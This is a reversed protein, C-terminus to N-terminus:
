SRSRGSPLSPPEEEGLILRRFSGPNFCLEIEMEMKPNRIHLVNPDSSDRGMYDLNQLGIVADPEDVPNERVDALIKDDNYWNLTIQQWETENELYEEQTIIHPKTLDRQIAPPTEAGYEAEVALEEEPDEEEQYEKQVIKHYAVRDNIKEAPTEESEEHDEILAAAAEQPSSFPKPVVEYYEKMGRTEDEIRKEFYAGLRKEALKYGILVGVGGSSLAVTAILLPSRM